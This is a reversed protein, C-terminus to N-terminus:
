GGLIKEVKKLAFEAPFQFHGDAHTESRFIMCDYEKLAEEMIVCVRALNKVSHVNLDKGDDRTELIEDCLAQLKSKTM